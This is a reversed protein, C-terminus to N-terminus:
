DAGPPTRDAHGRREKKYVYRAQRARHRMGRLMWEWPTRDDEAGRWGFCGYGALALIAPIGMQIFWHMGETLWYILGALAWWPIVLLIHRRAMGLFTLETKGRRPIMYTREREM